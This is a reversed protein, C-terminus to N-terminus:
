DEIYLGARRMSVQSPGPLFSGEKRFEVSGWPMHLLETPTINRTDQKETIQAVNASPSSM